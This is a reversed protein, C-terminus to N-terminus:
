NLININENINNLKNDIEILLIYAILKNIKNKYDIEIVNNKLTDISFEYEETLTFTQKFKSVDNKLILFTCKYDGECEPCEKKIIDEMEHVKCVAEVIEIEFISMILKRFSLLSHVDLNDLGKINYTDKNLSIQINFLM